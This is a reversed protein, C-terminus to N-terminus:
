KAKQLEERLGRNTEQIVHRTIKPFMAEAAPRIFPQAPMNKTGYELFRWYFADKPDDRGRNGRKFRGTVSRKQSAQAVRVTVSAKVYTRKSRRGLSVVNKMLRGTRSPARARIENRLMAAGQRTARRLHKGNLKPGAKKMFKILEDVGELQVPDPM